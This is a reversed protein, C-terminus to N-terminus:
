WVYGTSTIYNKVANFLNINEIPNNNIKLVGIDKSNIQITVTFEVTTSLKEVKDQDFYRKNLELKNTDLYEYHTAKVNTYDRIVKSGNRM